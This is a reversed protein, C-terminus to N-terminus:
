EDDGPLEHLLGFPIRYLVTGVGRGLRYGRGFADPDSSLRRLLLQWGVECLGFLLGRRRSTRIRGVDRDYLARNVAGTVAGAALGLSSLPEVEEGHRRLFRRLWATYGLTAVSLLLELRAATRRKM